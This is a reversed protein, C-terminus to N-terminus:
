IWPGAAVLALIKIQNRVLRERALPAQRSTDDSWLWQFFYPGSHLSNRPIKLGVSTLVSIHKLRFSPYCNAELLYCFTFNINIPQRWNIASSTMRFCLPHRKDLYKQSKQGKKNGRSFSISRAGPKM